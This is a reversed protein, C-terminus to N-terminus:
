IAAVVMGYSTWVNVKFNESIESLIRKIRADNMTHNIKVNDQNPRSVIIDYSKSYKVLDEVNFVYYEVGTKSIVCVLKENEFIKAGDFNKGKAMRKAGSIAKELTEYENVKDNKVLKYM